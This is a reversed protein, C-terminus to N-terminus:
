IVANIQIMEPKSIPEAASTDPASREVSYAFTM